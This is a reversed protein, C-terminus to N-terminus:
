FNLAQDGLSSNATDAVSSAGTSSSLGGKVGLSDTIGSSSSPSPLSLSSGAAPEYSTGGTGFNSGTGSELEQGANGSSVTQDLNGLNGLSTPNSTFSGPVNQTTSLQSAISQDNGSLLSSPNTFGGTGGVSSSPAATGSLDERLM